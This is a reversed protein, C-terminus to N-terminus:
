KIYEITPAPTPTSPDPGDHAVWYGFLAVILTAALLFLWKALPDPSTRRVLALAADRVPGEPSRAALAGGEDRVRRYDGAEFAATLARLAPDAPFDRAFAPVRGDPSM